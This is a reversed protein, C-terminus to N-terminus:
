RHAPPATIGSRDAHPSLRALLARLRVAFLGPIEVPATHGGPFDVFEAGLREAVTASVRREFPDSEAGAALAIRVKHAAIQDLDPVYDIFSRVEFRMMYEWNRSARKMMELRPGPQLSRAPDLLFALMEPRDAPLGGIRTQFVRFAERWGEAALVRDIDAYIALHEDADPLVRPVPPEHAVVAEVVQPYHAALDLAITAGGSNGFVRASELGCARLVAVADASQDAMKIKVRGDRLPSRSNGRRDYSLVTYSSALIDALAEFAGCDGGGGVIMLLPPGAGRREFYLDAGDAQAMGTTVAVPEAREPVGASLRAALTELAGVITALEGPEIEGLVGALVDSIPIAGRLAIQGPLEAGIRVLTRRRDAPDTATRLVGWDRLRAVSSSVYSQPLGTRATIQSISSDPRGMVDLVIMRLGAPIPPADPGRVADEAIKALRRGLRVMDNADMSPCYM